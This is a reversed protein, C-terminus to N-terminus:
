FPNCRAFMEKVYHNYHDKFCQEDLITPHMISKPCGDDLYGRPRMPTIPQQAMWGQLIAKLSNDPYMEGDDFDHDRGCYCHALEHYVLAVKREWTARKWFGIDLDVERWQKTTWCTGIVSGEDINTFGISVKGQFELNNRKSLAFFEDSIVKLEPNEITTAYIPERKMERKIPPKSCSAIFAFLIVLLFTRM